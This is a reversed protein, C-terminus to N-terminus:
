NPLKEPFDEFSYKYTFLLSYIVADQLFNCKVQLYNARLHGYLTHLANGTIGMEGKFKM